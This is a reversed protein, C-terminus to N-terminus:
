EAAGIVGRRHDGLAQVGVVLVAPRNEGVVASLPSQDADVRASRCRRYSGLQVFGEVGSLAAVIALTAPMTSPPAISQRAAGRSAVSTRPVPRPQGAATSAVGVRARGAPTTRSEAGVTPWTTGSVHWFGAGDVTM